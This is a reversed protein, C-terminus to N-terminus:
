AIATRQTRGMSSGEARAGPVRAMVGMYETATQGREARLSCLMQALRKM